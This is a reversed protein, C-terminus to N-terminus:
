AASAARTGAHGATGEEALLRLGEALINRAANLDRDHAAGCSPCEWERVSLPMEDMVHGCASCTKSSPFFRGIKM